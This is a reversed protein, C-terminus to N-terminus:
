YPVWLRHVQLNNIEFREFDRGNFWAQDIRVYGRTGCLNIQNPMLTFGLRFPGGDAGYLHMGNFELSNAPSPPGAADKPTFRLQEFAIDVDLYGDAVGSDTAIYLEFFGPKAEDYPVDFQIRGLDYSFVQPPSAASDYGGFVVNEIALSYDRWFEPERIKLYSWGTGPATGMEMTLPTSGSTFFAYPANTGALTMTNLQLESGFVDESISFREIELSFAANVDINVTLGSHGYIASLEADCVPTPRAACPSQCFVLLMWIPAWFSLRIAKMCDNVPIKFRM